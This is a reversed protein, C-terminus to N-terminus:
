NFWRVVAAYTHTFFYSAILIMFLDIVKHIM